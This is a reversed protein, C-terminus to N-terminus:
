ARIKEVLEKDRMVTKLHEVWKKTYLYHDFGEIFASFEGKFNSNVEQPRADFYKWCRTHMSMNFNPFVEEILTVVKGPKLKYPSEVGKIFAIGQEYFKLQEESLGAVNVFDIALDSTKAHNGLKPVLFARLRYQQSQFVEESLDNKFTEMYERVVRYNERQLQKMAQIQAQESIRTLQMAIALNACLSYEDGFEEVLINEFNSLTSQCEGAVALDIAPLSRHEIKNRLGVM